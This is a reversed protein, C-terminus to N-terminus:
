SGKDNRRTDNELRELRKEINNLKILIKEFYNKDQRKLEQMLDNNSADQELLDTNYTQLFVAFLNLLNNKDIM